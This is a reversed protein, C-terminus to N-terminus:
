ITLNISVAIKNFNSAWIMTANTNTDDSKYAYCLMVYIDIHKYIHKLMLETELICVGNWEYVNCYASLTCRTYFKM